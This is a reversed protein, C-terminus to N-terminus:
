VKNIHASNIYSHFSQIIAELFLRGCDLDSLYRNPRLANESKFHSKQSYM